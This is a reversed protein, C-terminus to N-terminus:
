AVIWAHLNIHATTECIMLVHLLIGRASSHMLHLSQGLHRLPPDLFMPPDQFESLLPDLFAWYCLLLSINLLKRLIQFPLLPGFGGPGGWRRSGGRYCSM